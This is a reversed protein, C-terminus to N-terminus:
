AQKNGERADDVAYDFSKREEEEEKCLRALSPASSERAAAPNWVGALMDRGKLM